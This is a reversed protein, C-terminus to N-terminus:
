GQYMSLTHTVEGILYIEGRFHIDQYLKRKYESVYEKNQRTPLDSQGDAVFDLMFVSFLRLIPGRFPIHM